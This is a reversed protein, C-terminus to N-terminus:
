QRVPLAATAAATYIITATGGSLGGATGSLSGVTAIGTNSSSWTGSGDSLATTLGACLTTVGGIAPPLANVTVTTSISCGAGISYIISATGTTVGGVVGGSGVTAV